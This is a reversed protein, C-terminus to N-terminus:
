PDNLCLLDVWSRSGITLISIRNPQKNGGLRRMTWITAQACCRWREFHLWGIILTCVGGITILMSGNVLFGRRLHSKSYTTKCSSFVLEEARTVWRWVSIAKPKIRCHGRIREMRSNQWHRHSLWTAKELWYNPSMGYIGRTRTRNRYTM